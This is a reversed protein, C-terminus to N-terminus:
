IKTRNTFYMIQLWTELNVQKINFSNNRDAEKSRHCIM